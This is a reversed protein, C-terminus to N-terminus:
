TRKKNMSIVVNMNQYFQLKATLSQHHYKTALGGCVSERSCLRSPKTQNATPAWGDLLIVLLPEFLTGLAVLLCISLRSEVKWFYKGKEVCFIDM